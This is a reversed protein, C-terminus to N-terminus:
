LCIYQHLYLHLDYLHFYFYELIKWYVNLLNVFYM